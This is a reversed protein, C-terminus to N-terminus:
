QGTLSSINVLSFVSCAEYSTVRMVDLGRAVSDTLIVGIDSSAACKPEGTLVILREWGLRGAGGPWLCKSVKTLVCSRIISLSSIRLNFRHKYTFPVLEASHV